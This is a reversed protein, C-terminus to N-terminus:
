DSGRFADAVFASIATAVIRHGDPNFHIDTEFFHQPGLMPSLDLHPIGNRVCFRNIFTARSNNGAVLDDRHPIVIVGFASGASVADKSLRQLLKGSIERKYDEDADVEDKSDPAIEVDLVSQLTNKLLFVLHSSEYLWRQFKKAQHKWQPSTDAPFQLTGNDDLYAFQRRLNDEFDNGCYFCLLTIDPSIVKHFKRFALLEQSTSYGQSGVVAVDWRGDRQAALHQLLVPFTEEYAVELNEVFSDGLLLMRKAHAPKATVDEDRFGLNNYHFPVRIDDVKRVYVGHGHPTGRWGLNADYTALRKAEQEVFMRLTVEGIVVATVLGCAIAALAFWRRRRRNGSGTVRGSSSGGNTRDSPHDSPRNRTEPREASDLQSVSM